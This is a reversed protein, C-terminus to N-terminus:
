LVELMKDEDEALMADIRKDLFEFVEAFEELKTSNSAWLSLQDKLIALIRKKGKAPNLKSTFIGAANEIAAMAKGTIGPMVTIYDKAFETWTEKPIGSGRRDIKPVSALYSIRLKNLDLETQQNVPKVEDDVQEKAAAFIQENLVDVVYNKTADDSERLIAKLGEFTIYPLVLNVNNRKTGLEKNLRFKFTAEANQTLPTQVGDLDLVKIEPHLESPVSGVTGANAVTAAAALAAANHVHHQGHEANHQTESM